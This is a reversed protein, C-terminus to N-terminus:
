INGPFYIGGVTVVVMKDKINWELSLGDLAMELGRGAGHQGLQM